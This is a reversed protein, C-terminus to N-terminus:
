KTEELRVVSIVTLNLEYLTYLVRSLASQDSLKGQLTTVLTGTELKAQSTTMKELHDNWIPDIWGQVIIQYTASLKFSIPKNPPLNMIFLHYIIKERLFV